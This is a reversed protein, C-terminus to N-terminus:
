IRFHYSFLSVQSGKFRQDEERSTQTTTKGEAVRPNLQFIISYFQPCM